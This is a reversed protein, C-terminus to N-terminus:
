PACFLERSTLGACSRCLCPTAVTCPASAACLASCAAASTFYRAKAGPLHRELIHTVIREPISGRLAPPLDDWAVAESIAGDPFRRMEAREGWLHRFAAAPKGADAAPGRDVVRFAQAAATASLPSAM